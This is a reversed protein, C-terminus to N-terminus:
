RQMAAAVREVVAPDPTSAKAFYTEVTLREPRIGGATLGARLDAIMTGNGVLHWHADPSIVRAVHDSVRGTLGTWGPAPRSLVPLWRLNPHAAALADLEAGHALDEAERFGALLTIPRDFGASLARSAFGHLPGIGSGTSIGVFAPADAVLARVAEGYRGGIRITEGPQMTAMRASTRGDKVIRYLIGLRRSDAWSV